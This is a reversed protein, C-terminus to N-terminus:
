KGVAIATYKSCDAYKPNVDNTDNYYVTDFMCGICNHMSM